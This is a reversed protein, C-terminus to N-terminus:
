LVIFTSGKFMNKKEINWGNDGGGANNREM